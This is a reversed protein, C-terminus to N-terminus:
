YYDLLKVVNSRQKVIISEVCQKEYNLILTTFIRFTPCQFADNITHLEQKGCDGASPPGSSVAPHLRVTPEQSRKGMRFHMMDGPFLTFLLIM